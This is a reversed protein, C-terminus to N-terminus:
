FPRDDSTGDYLAGFTGCLRETLGKRAYGVDELALLISLCPHRYTSIWVRLLTETPPSVDM